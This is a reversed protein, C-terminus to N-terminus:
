FYYKASKRRTAIQTKSFQLLSDKKFNVLHKYMDQGVVMHEELGLKFPNHVVIIIDSLQYLFDSQYLDGKRPASNKPNDREEINRNM